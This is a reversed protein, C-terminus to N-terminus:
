RVEDTNSVRRRDDRNWWCCDVVGLGLPVAGPEGFGVVDGDNSIVEGGCGGRQNPHRGRSRSRGRGMGRVGLGLGVLVSLLLVTLLLM